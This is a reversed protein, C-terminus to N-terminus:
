WYLHHFALEKDETVKCERKTGILMENKIYVSQTRVYLRWNRGPTTNNRGPSVNRLSGRSLLCQFKDHHFSNSIICTLSKHNNYVSYKGEFNLYQLDLAWHPLIQLHSRQSIFLNLTPWSHPLRMIPNTGKFSSPSLSLDEARHASVSSLGQTSM